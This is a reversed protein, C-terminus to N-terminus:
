WNINNLLSQCEDILESLFYHQAEKLIKKLERRGEPLEVDGDRMYNLILDFHKPSRDISTTNDTGTMTDNELM